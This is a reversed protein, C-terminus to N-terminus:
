NKLAECIKIMEVFLKPNLSAKGPLLGDVGGYELFEQANKENASGGYIIRPMDIKVGFKDTLVKRIFIAMEKSDEATSDHRGPTSSLAWVPEYAVIMKSIFNKQVGDLCAELQNKVINFYAHDESRETEGVCLIPILGASLASKLKKNIGEDKEGLARRESHGLIVYRVTMDYLMTPSVEGTFAGIDGAQSSDQAGLKIKTTKIKALNALYVYPACIVVEINKLTPLGKVVAGFIKEAEKATEPNMKWNGIVLKKNNPM